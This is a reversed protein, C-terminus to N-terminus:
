QASWQSKPNYIIPTYRKGEVKKTKKPIPKSPASGPMKIVSKKKSPQKSRKAKLSGKRAPDRERPASLVMPKEQLVEQPLKRTTTFTHESIDNKKKQNQEQLVKERQLNIFYETPLGDSLFYRDGGWAIRPKKNGNNQNQM